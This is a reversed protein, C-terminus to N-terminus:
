LEEHKVEETVTEQETAEESKSSTPDDQAASQVIVGTPLKKKTGEGMRIADIWAEVSEVGFDGEYHRLWERRANIAVLEVDATLGLSQKISALEDVDSAVALFPILQRNGHVYKTNLQSLSSRVPDGKESSASPVFALICTSAKPQLCKETLDQKTTAVSIAIVEPTPTAAEPSSASSGSAESEAKSSTKADSKTKKSKQKDSAAKAKAPAPDPNPEGVKKLFEVMPKKQLEGDYVIPEQGEGPILVFSPFKEIGFKKAATKEKDRIQGVSIVGLFDIALSRLLASTTGKETFLIAKPKDGSLFTDLDKDTVRSVHNNIKSAVAEMIASATRAGQYDEIVPRGPASKGPRVIKLTPFGQVGMAGCFQKNTEEDCDVAAVKALGNM